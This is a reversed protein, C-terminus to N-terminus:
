GVVRNLRKPMVTKPVERFAIYKLHEKKIRIIQETYDQKAFARMENPYKTQYDRNTQILIKARYLKKKLARDLCHKWSHM